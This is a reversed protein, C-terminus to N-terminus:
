PGGTGLNGKVAMERCHERALERLVPDGELVPLNHQERVRNIRSLVMDEASGVGVTEGGHCPIAISVCLLFACLLGLTSNRSVVKRGM